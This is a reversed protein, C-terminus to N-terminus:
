SRDSNVSRDKRNMCVYMYITYVRKLSMYLPIRIYSRVFTSIDYVVCPSYLRPCFVCLTSLRSVRVYFSLLFLSLSERTIREGHEDFKKAFYTDRSYCVFWVRVM